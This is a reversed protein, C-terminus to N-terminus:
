RTGLPGRSRRTRVHSADGPRWGVANGPVRSGRQLCRDARRRGMSGRRPATDVARRGLHGKDGAGRPSRPLVRSGSDEPPEGRSGAAAFAWSFVSGGGVAGRPTQLRSAIMGQRIRESVAVPSVPRRLVDIVSGDPRALKIAYASSDSYAFTGDPLVDWHFGPEFYRDEMSAVVKGWDEQDAPSLSVEPRPARWGQLIPEQEIVDGSLSLTELARDDAGPPTEDEEHGMRRNMRNMMEILVRDVGLAILRDGLPDARIEDHGLAFSLPKDDGAMRVFRELEGDPSFVQIASHEADPVAFRGDRWVALAKVHQFEGPGEGERGVVRVLQGDPGIVVVRKNLVDLVLLNGAGDFSVELWPQFFAWERANVGGVRYVETMDATLPRDQAIAPTALLTAVIPYTAKRMRRKRTGPGLTQLWAHRNRCVLYVATALVASILGDEVYGSPEDEARRPVVHIHFADHHVLQLLVLGLRPRGEAIM